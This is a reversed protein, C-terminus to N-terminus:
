IRFAVKTKATGKAAQCGKLEYLSNQASIQRRIIFFQDVPSPGMYEYKRTLKDCFVIQKVM